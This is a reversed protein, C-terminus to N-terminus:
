KPDPPPLGLLKRRLRRIADFFPLNLYRDLRTTTVDLKAKTQALLNEAAVMRSEIQALATELRTELQTLSSSGTHQTSGFNQKWLLNKIRENAATWSQRDFWISNDTKHGRWRFECTAEYSFVFNTKRCLFLLLFLDELLPLHPDDWLDKLLSTRAVFANSTIFNDLSVLRGRDFPEFYTLAAPEAPLETPASVALDPEWVRIAGSYAVGCDNFRELLNVLLHAHNPYIVDDDDLIGFYESSVARLGDWLQNSRSGTYSSETVQVPLQHKYEDVIESLHPVEKYQVVVAGVSGYSQRAISDLARQVYNAGRDGVRVIFQVSKEGLVKPSTNAAFKKREGIQQHRPVLDALLKELTYSQAFIDYARRSLRLADESNQSIWQMYESIQDTIRRADDTRELYLVSDHFVNRIFPHEQCIAVAGSAAIEFIRSSPTGTACHEERHLCLGVGAKNLADLISVGDFPLTGRYSHQIHSWATQPGYIDLYPEADLGAFLEGFRPGDWNTGAYLLRPADLEPPSYPVLHSTTYWPAIFYTKHTAYLIDKLWGGIDESSCLYGDYSIINKIFRADQAFFAPPTVMSGYTPFRTLKPSRFTLAIVFDPNCLNIETSSAVELAEWGINRAARCIRQSFETEAVQQGAYHNHIAIKL